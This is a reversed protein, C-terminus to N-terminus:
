ICFRNSGPFHSPLFSVIFPVLLSLPSSPSESVKLRRFIMLKTNIQQMSSMRKDLENLSDRTEQLVQQNLVSRDDMNVKKKLFELDQQNKMNSDVVEQHLKEIYECMCKDHIQAPLCLDVLKQNQQQFDAWMKEMESSLMFSLNQLSSDWQQELNMLVRDRQGLLDEEQQLHCRQVQDAHRHAEELERKTKQMIFNQEDLKRENTQQLIAVHKLQEADRAQRLNKRWSEILKLLNVSANRQEKQLKDKLYLTLTEEKKKAMEEEAQARQQLQLLREEETVEGKARKKPM